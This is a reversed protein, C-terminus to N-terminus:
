FLQSGSPRVSVSEITLQDDLHRPNWTNVVDFLDSHKPLLVIGVVEAVGAIVIGTTMVALNPTKVCFSPDLGAPCDQHGFTTVGLVTVVLGGLGGGIMTFIAARRRTQLSDVMESVVHDRAVVEALQDLDAIYIKARPMARRRPALPQVPARTPALAQPAPGFDLGAEAVYVIQGDPLRTQRWGNEGPPGVTLLTGNPFVQIVPASANPQARATLEFVNVRAAVLVPPPEPPAAPEASEPAPDPDPAPAPPSAPGGVRLAEDLVFGFTGSPLQVRRWGNAPQDDVTVNTNLQLRSLVPARRFPASRVEAGERVVVATEALAPAAVLLAAAVLILTGLRPFARDNM